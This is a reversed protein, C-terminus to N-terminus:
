SKRPALGRRGVAKLSPRHAASATFTPGLAFSSIAVNPGLAFTRTTGAPGLERAEIPTHMCDLNTKEVFQKRSLKTYVLYHSPAM